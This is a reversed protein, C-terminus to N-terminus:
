SDSNNLGLARLPLDRAINRVAPVIQWMFIQTPDSEDLGVLGAEGESPALDM